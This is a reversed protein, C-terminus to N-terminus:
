GYCRIDDNCGKARVPRPPYFAGALKIETTIPQEYQKQREIRSAEALEKQKENHYFVASRYQSGIDGGQRSGQTPNHKNWFAKLLTEYSIVKPDFELRVVEAHGTVGSCVEEYTTERDRGGTYGVQTQLVRWFCGAAFTALETDVRSGPNGTSDVLGKNLWSDLFHYHAQSNDIASYAPLAVRKTTQGITAIQSPTPHMITPM